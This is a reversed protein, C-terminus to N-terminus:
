RAPQSGGHGIREQLRDRLAAAEALRQSKSLLDVLRSTAAPHFPSIELVRRYWQEATQLHAQALHQDGILLATEAYWPRIRVAQQPYVRTMAQFASEFYPLAAEPQGSIQLVDGMNILPGWADPDLSVATRYAALAGPFDGRVSRVFGLAKHTAADKPALQVARQALREAHDLERLASPTQTHGHKLADGLRKFEVGPEDPWRVVRQAYANALGAYAPAHNPHLAVVREFLEIAAENDARSYQFYYDNARDTLAKAETSARASSRGLFALIGLGGAILIAAIAILWRRRPPLVVAESAENEVPTPDSQPTPLFRYGRKSLTEIYRPTRADDQLAKRLKFVARSLTDEGVVVGPWLKELIEERTVVQGPQGGLLFLLEMVKPELRDSGEPGTLEGSDRRARWPGFHLLNPDSVLTM